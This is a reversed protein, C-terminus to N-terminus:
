LAQLRPLKRGCTMTQNPWPPARRAIAELMGVLHRVDLVHGIGSCSLANQRHAARLELSRIKVGM